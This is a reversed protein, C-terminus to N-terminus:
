GDSVCHLQDYHIFVPQQKKGLAQKLAAADYRAVGLALMKGKEDVVQVLDGKGFEGKVASLGVPLLSIAQGPKRMMAALGENATVAAPAASVESALWRKVTNRKGPLPAIATGVPEDRLIRNVVDPEHASAIHMRIGLAAMKRAINLKSAM